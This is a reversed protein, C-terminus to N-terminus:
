QMYMSLSRDVDPVVKVMYTYPYQARRHTLGLFGRLSVTWPQRSCVVYTMDGVYM